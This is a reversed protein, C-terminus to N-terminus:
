APEGLEKWAIIEVNCLEGGYVWHWEENSYKAVGNCLHDGTNYGLYTVLVDKGEEPYGVEKVYNWSNDEEGLIMKCGNLYKGLINIVDIVDKEYEEPIDLVVRM